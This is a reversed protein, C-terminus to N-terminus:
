VGRQEIGLGNGFALQLHHLGNHILREVNTRRETGTKRQPVVGSETLARRQGFYMCTVIGLRQVVVVMTHM